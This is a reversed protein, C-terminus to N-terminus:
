GLFSMQRLRKRTATPPRIMVCLRVGSVSTMPKLMIATQRAM